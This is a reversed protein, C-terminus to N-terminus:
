NLFGPKGPGAMFQELFYNVMQPQFYLVTVLTFVLGFIAGWYHTNHGINDMGRKEMYSSYWLYAVGLIVGPLPPFIFWDWPRFLIFAFVLASTAGSAGLAAYYTNERHKFYSPISSVVLSSFYLLLFVIRGYSPGFIQNYYYEVMEGLQYLVVLNIILHQWNAHIFGHTIFRYWQGEKISVPHFLLKQRMSPSKFAQYSIIGTMIVLILTLSM